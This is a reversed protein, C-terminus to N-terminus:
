YNIQSNTTKNFYWNLIDHAIPVAIESGEGGEEVLVTIVVEPNEYPAFGTFWAHNNKTPHWQATGTKGAAEINLNSLYAASGSTVAQKMGQRIININQQDIFDQRIIQPTIFKEQGQQDTIKSVLSPQYLTGKNAFVSTFNAVQLPTVLIDGQGIAMHYTDGIYWEEDKKKMKWAPDPVLGSNEGLLDLGTEAGLGFLNYYKKLGEVGLGPYDQYGGGIIYFYTNVSWAIAKYINTSGHGGAKWDPFFWRDYLMLGGTSLYSTKDTIIKEQLAAAGVVPKITSGSPYEGKISRNFLPNDKNEILRDYDDQSIGDAFLNINYDPYSILALIQGNQPNLLVIVAKSKNYKQLDNILIQRIQKQKEADISLVLNHGNQPDHQYLVKTIKGQSDVEVGKKGYQGRLEPEYYLELGTKGIHDNLLYGKEKKEAFEKDTIKGLYGMIHAFEAPYTYERKNRTEIYLGPVQQAEIILGLADKHEINEKIAILYKFNIPYNDIKSYIEQEDVNIIESIQKIQQQRVDKDFSLDRPLINADFIPINKTLIRNQQDYILGRASMLDIEKKRNNDALDQYHAGQVVQLQFCRGLITLLFFLVVISIFNLKKETIHKKLFKDPQDFVQNAEEQFQDDLFYDDSFDNSNKYKRNIKYNM